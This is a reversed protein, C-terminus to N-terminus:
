LSCYLPNVNASVFYDEDYDFAQRCFFSDLYRSIKWTSFTYMKNKLSKFDAIELSKTEVKFKINSM